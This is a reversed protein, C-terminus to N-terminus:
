ALAETHRPPSGRKTKQGKADDPRRQRKEREEKKQCTKIGDGSGERSEHQRPRDFTFAILANVRREPANRRRSESRHDGGLICAKAVIVADIPARQALDQAARAFM